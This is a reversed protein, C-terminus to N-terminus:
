CCTVNTPIAWYFHGSFGVILGVLILLIFLATYNVVKIKMRLELNRKWGAASYYRDFLFELAINVYIM